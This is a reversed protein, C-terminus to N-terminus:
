NVKMYLGANTGSHASYIVATSSALQAQAEVRSFGVCDRARMPGQSHSFAGILVDGTHLVGISYPYVLNYLSSGSIMRASWSMGDKSVYFMNSREYCEIAFFWTGDFILQSYTASYGNAQGPLRVPVWSAGRNKSYIITNSGPSMTVLVDNKAFLPTLGPHAAQVAPFLGGFSWSFGNDSWLSRDCDWASVFRGDIVAVHRGRGDVPPSSPVVSNLWVEGDESYCLSTGAVYVGGSPTNKPCWAIDTALIDSVRTWVFGDPSRWLSPISDVGSFGAWFFGNVFKVFETKTGYGADFSSTTLVVPIQTGNQTAMLRRETSGGDIYAIVFTNNGYCMEYGRRTRSNPVSASANVTVNPIGSTTITLWSVGDTTRWLRGSTELALTMTPSCAVCLIRVSRPLYTPFEQTECVGARIVMGRQVMVPYASVNTDVVGERFWVGDSGLNLVPETSGLLRIEGAMAGGGDGGGGPTGTFSDLTVPSAEVGGVFNEQRVGALNFAKIWFRYRGSEAFHVHQRIGSVTTLLEADDPDSSPAAYLPPVGAAVLAGSTYYIDAGGYNNPNEVLTWTLAVQQVGSLAQLSSAEVPTADPSEGIVHWGNDPIIPALAFSSHKGEIDFSQVKFRVNVGSNFESVGHEFDLQGLTVTGCPYWEEPHDGEEQYFIKAGSYAGYLPERWNIGLRIPESPHEEPAWRERVVWTSPSVDQPRRVPGIQGSIDDEPPSLEPPMLFGNTTYVEDKYELGTIMRTYASGNGAIATVRYLRVEDSVRGIMYHAFVGPMTLPQISAELTVTKTPVETTDPTVFQEYILDGYVFRYAAGVPIADILDDILAVCDSGDQRIARVRYTGILTSSQYVQIHTIRKPLFTDGDMNLPAQNDSEPSSLWLERARQRVESVVCGPAPPVDLGYTPIHILARHPVSQFQFERDLTLTIPAAESVALVRGSVDYNIGVHKVAILSGISCAISEIAAEFEITRTIHNSLNLQLWGEKIAQTRDTVGYLELSATQEEEGPTILPSVVRVETREWNRTRDFYSVQIANAREAFSLWSTKFTGTVINAESFMMVPTDAREIVVSFRSGIRTLQARGARCPYKLADWIASSTDFVGNFELKPSQADCYEAWERFAALDIRDLPVRGGYRTNTLMDLTVWAPNASPAWRWDGKGDNATDDWVKVLVGHHTFTVNPINSIQDSLRVRVAVWATNSYGVDDEIIQGIGELDVRDLIKSDEDAYKPADGRGIRIKYYGQPLTPTRLTLRRPMRARGSFSRFGGSIAPALKGGGGSPVSAPDGQEYSAETIRVGVIAGTNDDYIRGDAGLTTGPPLTSSRESKLPYFVGPDAATPDYSWRGIDDETVQATDDGPDPTIAPTITSTEGTPLVEMSPSLAVPALALSKPAEPIVPDRPTPLNGGSWIEFAEQNVAADDMDVNFRWQEGPIPTGFQDAVRLYGVRLQVSHTYTKGKKDTRMLGLPAVFDFRLADVEIQTIREIFLSPNKPQNAPDFPNWHPVEPTGGLSLNLVTDNFWSPPEQEQLGMGLEYSVGGYSSIPQDNLQIDSIQSVPGEGANVLMFLSQTRGFNRVHMAIINGAFRHTGYIVPVAIGEQSTNVPGAMGYTPSEEPSSSPKPVPLLANILLAGAIYAGAATASAAFGAGGTLTALYTGSAIGGSFVTLAVFAMLRLVNKSGSGGHLVPIMVITDDSVIQRTEWDSSPVIGGSVSVIYENGDEPIYDILRSSPSWDHFSEERDQLDMSNLLTIVKVQQPTITSDLSEISGTV